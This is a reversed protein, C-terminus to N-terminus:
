LKYWILQVSAFDGASPNHIPSTPMSLTGINVFSELAQSLKVDTFCLACFSGATHAVRLTFTGEGTDVPMEAEATSTINLNTWSIFTLSTVPDYYLKTLIIYVHAHM